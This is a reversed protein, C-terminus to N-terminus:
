GPFHKQALMLVKGLWPTYLHPDTELSKELTSCSIWKMESIEQPDFFQPLDQGEGIFVHDLEHEILENAFRACYRFHGLYALDAELGTEEKLRSKASFATDEGPQPHSCCTNTWLGGTHYKDVHRKQLLVEIEKNKRRYLLVSFARHLQGKQHALLKEAEGIVQDNEDVLIVKSRM